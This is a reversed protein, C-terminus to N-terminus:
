RLRDTTGVGSRSTLRKRSVVAIVGGLWLLLCGSQRQIEGYCKSSLVCSMDVLIEACTKFIIYIRVHM